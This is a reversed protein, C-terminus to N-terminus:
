SSTGNGRSRSPPRIGSLLDDLTSSTAAVPANSRLVPSGSGDRDLHLQREGGVREALDSMNAFGMSSEDFAPYRRRLEFGLQNVTLGEDGATAVLESVYDGVAERSPQEGSEAADATAAVPSPTKTEAEVPTPVPTPTAAVPTPTAPPPPPPSAVVAPVVPVPPAQTPASEAAPAPPPTAPAPTAPAPTPAPAAPAPTPAPAPAASADDALAQAATATGKAARRGREPRSLPPLIRGQTPLDYLNTRPLESTIADPISEVDVFTIAANAAAFGARERFGLVTAKVGQSTLSQLRSEFRSADHSAVIVEALDGGGAARDIHALIDNGFEATDDRGALPKVFVGFGSQRLETVRPATIEETGDIIGTFFTAEPDEGTACRDALWFYVADMSPRHALDPERGIVEGLREQMDTEDWVLLRVKGTANDMVDGSGDREIRNAASSRPAGGAKQIKSGIIGATNVLKRQEKKM